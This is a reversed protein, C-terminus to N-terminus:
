MMLTHYWVVHLYEELLTQDSDALESETAWRHWQQSIIKMENFCRLVNQKASETSAALQIVALYRVCALFLM